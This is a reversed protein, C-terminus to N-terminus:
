ANNPRWEGGRRRHPLYNLLLALACFAFKKLNQAAFQISFKQYGFLTTVHPPLEETETATCIHLMFCLNRKGTQTAEAHHGQRYLWIICSRAKGEPYLTWRCQREWTAFLKNRSNRVGRRGPRARLIWVVQSPSNLQARYMTNQSSPLRAHRAQQQLGFSAQEGPIAFTGVASSFPLVTVANRLLACLNPRLAFWSRRRRWM